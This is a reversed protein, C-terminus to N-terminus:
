NIQNSNTQTYMQIDNANLYILLFLIYFIFPYISSGLSLSTMSKVSYVINASQSHNKHESITHDSMHYIYKYQKQKTTIQNYINYPVRDMSLLISSGYLKRM